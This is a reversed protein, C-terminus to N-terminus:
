FGGRPMKYGFLYIGSGRKKKKKPKKEIEAEKDEKKIKGESVMKTYQEPYGKRMYAYMNQTGMNDNCTKCVLRLNPLKDNGGHAVSQVHGAQVYDEDLHAGCSFCEGEHKGNWDRNRLAKKTTPSISKRENKSFPNIPKFKIPQFLGRTM